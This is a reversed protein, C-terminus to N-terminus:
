RLGLALTLGAVACGFLVIAAYLKVTQRKIAQRAAKSPEIHGEYERMRADMAKCLHLRTM